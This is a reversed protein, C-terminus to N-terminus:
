PTSVAESIEIWARRASLSPDLVNVAHYTVMEIWARRASLSLQLQNICPQVLGNRDVSEKRLAVQPTAPSLAPLSIEIWARRASLSKAVTRVYDDILIEIWARRASLSRGQCRGAQIEDVNRDVSEKRLAVSVPLAVTVFAFEMEIWARRASLSRGTRRRQECFWIEIWARRASLSMKAQVEKLTRGYNRDVSEKRLAVNYLRALPRGILNRDM